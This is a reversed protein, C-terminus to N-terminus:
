HVSLMKTQHHPARAMFCLTSTQKVSISPNPSPFQKFQFSSALCIFSRVKEKSKHGNTLVLPKSSVKEKEEVNTSYIVMMKELLQYCSVVLFTRTQTM